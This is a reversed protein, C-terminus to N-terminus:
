LYEFDISVTLWTPVCEMVFKVKAASGGKWLRGSRGTIVDGVLVDAFVGPNMQDPANAGSAAKTIDTRISEYVSGAPLQFEPLNVWFSTKISSVMASLVKIEFPEPELRM